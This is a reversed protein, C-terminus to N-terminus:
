KNIWAWEDVKKLLKIFGKVENMKAIAKLDIVDSNITIVPKEYTDSEGLLYEPTCDYLLCLKDLITTNFNIEDSEIKLLETESISLYDAVQKITYNNENRLSTLRGNINGM